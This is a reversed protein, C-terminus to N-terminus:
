KSLYNFTKLGPVGQGYALGYRTEQFLRQHTQTDTHGGKSGYFVLQTIHDKYSQNFLKQQKETKLNHAKGDIYHICPPAGTM